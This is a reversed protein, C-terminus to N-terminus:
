INEKTKMNLSVILSIIANITSSAFIFILAVVSVDGIDFYYYEKILLSLLMVIVTLVLVILFQQLINNFLIFKFIDFKNSGFIRLVNIDKEKSTIFILNSLIFVVAIGITSIVLFIESINKILKDVELNLLLIEYDQSQATPIYKLIEPYNNLINNSYYILDDCCYYLIQRYLEYKNDNAVAIQNVIYKYPYYITPAKDDDIIEINTNFSIDIKLYTEEESDIPIMLFQNTNFTKGNEKYYKKNIKLVDSNTEYNAKVNTNFYQSLIKNINYYYYLNNDELFDKNEINKEIIIEGYINNYKKVQQNSTYVFFISLFLVVNVFIFSIFIGKQKRLQRFIYKFIINNDLGKTKINSPIIPEKESIESRNLKIAKLEGNEIEYIEDAYKDILLQNHSVIIVKKNDSIKQILEMVRETNYVDLSATPEDLLFFQANSLLGRILSIRQLEGLSLEAPYKDLKSKLNFYELYRGATTEYLQTNINNFASTIKLNELITLSEIFNHNQYMMSLKNKKIIDINKIQKSEVGDYFIEGGTKNILQYLLKLLTSKGSGNGGKIITIGSAFNCTINKLIQNNNYSKNLKYTNITM